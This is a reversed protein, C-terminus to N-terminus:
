APAESVEAEELEAPDLDRACVAAAFEGLPLIFTFTSGRGEGESELWLCGGHLEILRRTLALGLGTGQRCRAYSSDVQEFEEFIRQQDQPRIGIGTDEVAVQLWGGDIREVRANKPVRPDEALRASVRVRGGAPTFKVANSLLNYMIQKFKAEDALVSDLTPDTEKRLEVGSRAAMEKLVTEVGALATRVDFRSPEPALRGAEIKSLDLIDNILQLLHRGSTLINAVHRKQRENLSGFTQDELLESFGIIANLPTRLEHSMNALFQSKTRSAIEALEKAHVIERQSERLQHEVRQREAIESELHRNARELEATREVVRAELVENLRRVEENSAALREEAQRRQAVEMELARTKRWLELFAAVKARLLDPNVPKFLYDVAGAAYGRSVHLDTKSIATMFLIPTHQSRPRARILRATEFGDMDPMQVDLLILAFDDELLRRLAERGSGARILDCVLDALTAEIALLNEPRDDVLLIKGGPEPQM